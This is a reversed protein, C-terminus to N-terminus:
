FMTAQARTLRTLLPCVLHLTCACSCRSLTKKLPLTTIQTSVICNHCQPKLDQPEMAFFTFDQSCDFMTRNTNPGRHKLKKFHTSCVASIEPTQIIRGPTNGVMSRVFLWVVQSGNTALSVELWQAWSSKDVVPRKKAQYHIHYAISSTRKNM